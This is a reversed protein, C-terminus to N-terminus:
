LRKQTSWKSALPTGISEMYSAMSTCVSLPARSGRVPAVKELASSFSCTTVSTSPWCVVALNLALVLASATSHILWRSIAALPSRGAPLATGDDGAASVPLSIFGSSSEGAGFDDGEDARGSRGATRVAGAVGAAIGSGVAAGGAGGAVGPGNTVAM